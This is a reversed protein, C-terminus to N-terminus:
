NLEVRPTPRLRSATDLKQFTRGPIPCAAALKVEALKQKMALPRAAGHVPPNLELEARKADMRRNKRREMVELRALYVVLGLAVVTLWALFPALFFQFVTNTM